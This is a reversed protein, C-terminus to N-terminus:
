SDLFGEQVVDGFTSAEEEVQVQTSGNIHQGLMFVIKVQKLKEQDRAWSERIALRAAFNDVASCIIVLLYPCTSNCIAQPSIVTTVHDPNVLSRASRSQNAPWVFTRPGRSKESMHPLYSILLFLLMALILLCLRPYRKGPSELFASTPDSITRNRSVTGNARLAEYMLGRPYLNSDM